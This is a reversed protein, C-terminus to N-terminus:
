EYDSISFYKEKHYLKGKPVNYKKQIRRIESVIDAAEGHSDTAEDQTWDSENYRRFDSLSQTLDFKLGKIKRKDKESMRPVTLIRKSKKTKKKTSKKVM